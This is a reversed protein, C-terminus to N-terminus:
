CRSRHHATHHSRHRKIAVLRRYSGLLSRGHITPELSTKALVELLRALTGDRVLTVERM